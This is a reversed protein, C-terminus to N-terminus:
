SPPRGAARLQGVLSSTADTTFLHLRYCSLDAVAGPSPAYTARKKNRIIEYTPKNSGVLFPFQERGISPARASEGGRLTACIETGLGFVRMREGLSSRLVLSLTYPLSFVKEGFFDELEQDGSAGIGGKGSDSIGARRLEM